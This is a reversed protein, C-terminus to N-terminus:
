FISDALSGISGFLGARGRAGFMPASRGFMAAALARQLQAKTLKKGRAATGTETRRSKRSKQGMAARRGPGRPKPAAKRRRGKLPPFIEPHQDMYERLQRLLPGLMVESGCVRGAKTGRTCNRGPAKWYQPVGDIMCVNKYSQSPKTCRKRFQPVNTMWGFDTQIPVLARSAAHGTQKGLLENVIDEQNMKETQERIFIHYLLLLYIFFYPHM